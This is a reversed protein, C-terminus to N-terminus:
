REYGLERLLPRCIRNVAAQEDLSVGARWDRLGATPPKGLHQNSRRSEPTWSDMEGSRRTYELMQATYSEGIAACVRRLVGEPDDALDELRVECYRTRGLRQGARRGATVCDHWWHAKGVLGSSAWVQDALSAAVERGDRIVHIFVSQPFLRSLFELHLVNEPTKDGWRPKGQRGAYAAFLAAVLEAYSSPRRREVAARAAAETLPWDAYKRHRVIEDLVQARRDQSWRGRRPAVEVLWQAEPPIALRPHEQLM